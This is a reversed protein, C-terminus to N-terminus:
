PLLDLCISSALPPVLHSAQCCLAHALCACSPLCACSRTPIRMTTTAVSVVLAPLEPPNIPSPWASVPGLTYDPRIPDPRILVPSGNQQGLGVRYRALSSAPWGVRHSIIKLIIKILLNETKNTKTCFSLFFSWLLGFVLM